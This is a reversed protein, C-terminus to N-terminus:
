FATWVPQRKIKWGEPCPALAGGLPAEKGMSAIPAWVVM